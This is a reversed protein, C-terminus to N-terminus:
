ESLYVEILSIGTATGKGKLIATYEGPTLTLKLAPERTDSPLLPGLTAADSRVCSFHDLSLSLNPM